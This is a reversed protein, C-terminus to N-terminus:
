LFKAALRPYRARMAEADDFDFGGGLEPLEADSPPLEEGGTAMEYAEAAVYHMAECEEDGEVVDVLSDPDRLAAEFVGRGRAILWGRFYDFGDDSCGGHILYAAGWLEWTYSRALLENVIRDFAEIDRRPRESLARTLPAVDLASGELTVHEAILSWFQDHTM